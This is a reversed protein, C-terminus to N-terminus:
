IIIKFIFLLIAGLLGAAIDDLMVGIGDPTELKRIGFPKTIDLLRFVLFGLVMWWFTHPVFMMTIFYGVLEDVVVEDPDKNGTIDIVYQSAVVGLPIFVIFFLLKEFFNNGLLYIFPIASLTGVTGPAVPAKGLGFGTAIVKLFLDKYNM